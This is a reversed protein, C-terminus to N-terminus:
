MSFPKLPDQINCISDTQAQKGHCSGICGNVSSITLIMCKHDKQSHECTHTTSHKPIKQGPDHWCHESLM